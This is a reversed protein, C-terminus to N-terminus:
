FNAKLGMSFTRYYPEGGVNLDRIKLNKAFQFVNSADVFLDLNKMHLSKSIQDSMNLTLQVKRIQFYDNNYLWYSSRRYNNSNTQSSLAPYTATSATAPTWSDLVVESYKKNGDVWYYNGERFNQAGSRGEGIVFLTLNKYSVKLQVGGSLPTQYRRLYIEDNTDVVGDGNQDRYKIDGPRVTGFSQIPSADIETQDKFLGLAELGFTADVPQGQRYQYVNNYVEDVKTRKSTVYLTNVGLYFRWDGVSKNFNLGFEIGKYNESGFNQYPIFDTYFSPYTTTPRTVLGSYVDYFLNVEAGITKKFFLGEAGFNIENRKVFGLDPSNPWSSRVGSRSRLGENWAYSSSTGYRNDYYYFGGIPIDSNIIGASLRLKLYDIANASALFDENKLMWALGLTPSFGRNNGQMLKVSNAYAGSFDVLYKNNYVYTLQLGLHAQKVGQFDGQDKSNSGYGLLSGTLHHVKDFTRDYSFLGYFGFKRYFFTGGVVQTGPRADLAYQKLSLIKDTTADWTPEYVSYSNAVTQTYSMLYDFSINTHFSLGLMIKEMDFDVRNNFSFKRAISEMIGGSYSDAIANTLFNTNGGLLYQGDVDNKRGKLLPDNPDMLSFPLLPAFEFPRDTAADGWYDGRQRKDNAFTATGDISTKIARNIKLDVNGRVNFINNRANAAQGFDLISGSSNWGINSYYKAVDNGGSFEGKLDFYNKFSKMYENSYYDVDPYRYKNGTRYNQITADAYQATLGDNIRAQNFYTMNDASNLFKPLSRPTSIGYNASFSSKNKFAEGRKTTILIVGNVAASGYLVAANVDKLVTIEEIESLRLAIIDRPLGDVVYLANGSSLGSGTLDAVNIGIGIGRINNSGMMGLTRGTLINDAWIANDYSGVETTNVKSVTGVVDGEYAKRFALNVKADNDYLFKTSNLIIKTKLKAEDVTLTIIDFEKAEIILKSGPEVSISFKGAADTKTYSNGSFVEANAVPNGDKDNVVSKVVNSKEDQANTNNPIFLIALSLFALIISYKKKM